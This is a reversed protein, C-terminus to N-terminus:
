KGLMELIQEVTMGEDRAATLLSIFDAENESSRVAAVFRVFRVIVDTRPSVMPSSTESSAEITTMTSETPELPEPEDSPFSLTAAVARTGSGAGGSPKPIDRTVPEPALLLDPFLECLKEYHECIPVNTGCEWASVAQMTVGVIAAVTDITAGEALRLRRLADAFSEPKQLPVVMGGMAEIPDAPEILTVECPEPWQFTEKATRPVERSAPADDEWRFGSKRLDSLTNKFARPEELRSFHVLSKSPDPPVVRWHGRGTQSVSFGQENLKRILVRIDYASM